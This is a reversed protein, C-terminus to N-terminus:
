KVTKLVDQNITYSFKQHLSDIWVKEMQTQYESTVQSKVDMYTQPRKMKKGSVGTMAYGQPTVVKNDVGFVYADVFANEGETCLYPGSVSVTVSDKNFMEKVMAKWAKSDGHKKLMKKLSKAQKKNQCHFVYGKFHPKKWKFSKKNKDFWRELGLTDNAVKDWVQRKSVEYLLLGDYYEQILCRLPINNKVQADMVSDLVEERSLKGGSAEVIREIRVESSYEEVNQKKLSAMIEPKMEEYSGFSKRNIMKIIHFGFPSKVPASIQGNSLSYAAKEFEPVFAGPGVMPLRGGNKASGFDQSHKKAVSEFSAGSRLVWYLSDAKQLAANRQAESDKQNVRIMIHASEYLDKGNLYEATRKYTDYAISDILVTDVMYPTLQADRYSLYERKFSPLTDLRAAEAAAVKLKYNVFMPVYEEVTTQDVVGQADGNKHYSYEFESKYISKGNITMLVPDTVTQAAASCAFALLPILLSKKKM